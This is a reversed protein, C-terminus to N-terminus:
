PEKIAIADFLFCQKMIGMKLSNTIFDERSVATITSTTIEDGENSEDDENTNMMLNEIWSDLIEHNPCIGCINFTSTLAMM